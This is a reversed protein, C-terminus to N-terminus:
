YEISVNKHRIAQGFGFQGGEAGEVCRRDAVRQFLDVVLEAVAAEGGARQDAGEGVQRGDDAIGAGGGAAADLGARATALGRRIEADRIVAIHVFAILWLDGDNLIQVARMDAMAGKPALNLGIDM